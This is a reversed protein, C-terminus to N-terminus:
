VARAADNAVLTQQLKEIIDMFCKKMAWNSCRLFHSLAEGAESCLPCKDDKHQNNWKM